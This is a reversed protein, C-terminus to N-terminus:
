QLYANFFRYLGQSDYEVNKLKPSVLLAESYFYIPVIANDNMFVNEALHLSHM